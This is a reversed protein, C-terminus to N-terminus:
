ANPLFATCREIFWVSSIAGVLYGASQQVLSARYDFPLYRFVSKLFILLFIVASAFIIQGAEVGLNFFLLGTLMDAKPLGTDKLAAAFGFGHLLGFSSSVFVPYRWVLNNRRGKALEVALFIISLAIAAEVPPVPVRVVEFMSLSLTASHAITFGTITLLIKKWSGSIWLLCGIFLLHDLGGWIHTVGFWTYDGAISKRDGIRSIELIKEEPLFWFFMAATEFRQVRLATAMAPNGAPYHVHIREIGMDDACRYEAERWYGDSRAVAVVPGKLKCHTPLEIDPMFAVPIILPIKWGLSYEGPLTETLGIYLPQSNDAKANGAFLAVVLVLFLTGTYRIMAPM